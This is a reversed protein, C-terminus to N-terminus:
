SVPQYGIHELLISAQGYKRFTKRISEESEGFLAPASVVALIHLSDPIVITGNTLIWYCNSM